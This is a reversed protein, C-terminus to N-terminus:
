TNNEDNGKAKELGNLFKKVEYIRSISDFCRPCLDIDVEDKWGNETRISLRITLNTHEGVVRSGCRDCYRRVSM